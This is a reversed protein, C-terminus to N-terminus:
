SRSGLLWDHREGRTVAALLAVECDHMHRPLSALPILGKTWLMVHGWQGATLATATADIDTGPKLEGQREAALLAERAIKRSDSILVDVLRHEAPAQFLAQAMAQAYVPEDLIQECVLDVYALLAPIGPYLANKYMWGDGAFRKRYHGLAEEALGDDATALLTKFSARLSPGICWLLDDVAPVPRGMQAMAYQIAGTIGPKPDSLTGDLDFFITRYPM